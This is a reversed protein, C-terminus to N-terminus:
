QRVGYATGARVKPPELPAPGTAAEIAVLADFESEIADEERDVPTRNTLWLGIGAMAFLVLAGIGAVTFVIDLASM